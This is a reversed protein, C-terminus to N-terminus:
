IHFQNCFKLKGYKPAFSRPCPVLTDNISGQAKDIFDRSCFAIIERSAKEAKKQAELSLGEGFGFDNGQVSVSWTVPPRRYLAELLGAFVSPQLHHTGWPLVDRKPQVRAWRLGRELPEVTADVLILVEAGQVEEAVVPDLQHLSRLAVGTRSGLRLHLQEIVYPGIGDDKRHPNGYGIIWTSTPEPNEATV